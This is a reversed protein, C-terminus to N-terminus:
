KQLIQKYSPFGYTDAVHCTVEEIFNGAENRNTLIIFGSGFAPYAVFM